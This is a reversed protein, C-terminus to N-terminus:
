IYTRFWTIKPIYHNGASEAPLGRYEVYPQAISIPFKPEEMSIIALLAM